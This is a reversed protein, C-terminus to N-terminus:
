EMWSLDEAPKAPAVVEPAQEEKVHEEVVPQKPQEAGSVPKVVPKKDNKKPMSWKEVPSSNLIDLGQAKEIENLKGVFHALSMGLSRAIQSDSMGQRRQEFVYATFEKNTM